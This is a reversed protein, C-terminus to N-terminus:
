TEPYLCTLLEEIQEDQARRDVPAIPIERARERRRLEAKIMPILVRRRRGDFCLAFFAEEAAVAGPLLRASLLHAADGIFFEGEEAADRLAHPATRSGVLCCCTNFGLRGDQAHALLAALWSDPGSQLWNRIPEKILRAFQNM